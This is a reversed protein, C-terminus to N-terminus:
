SASRRRGLFLSGFRRMTRQLLEEFPMEGCFVRAAINTAADNKIAHRYIMETASYFVKALRLASDLHSGMQRHLLSTYDASRGEAITEAALAGSRIANLIGDGFLPNILGAADGCLLVRGDKTNLREKGYYVPLPHAFYKMRDPQYELGMLDLYAYIARKMQDSATSDGRGDARPRFFGSGVNLHDGKPFIWAYGRSMQGYELHIVDERLSEHGTGWTHPYEVEMAIGLQRNKRLNVARACIGNAGDAGIVHTAEFTEEVGGPTEARLSVGHPGVALDKAAIADKLDAGAAVARMALAHDFVSRQVMWLSISDDGPKNVPALVPDKYLWTHRMHRVDCEVVGDSQFEHLERGVVMPMGGGCTKHRPLARRELLLTKLGLRAAREAATAGAPGAGCVIV